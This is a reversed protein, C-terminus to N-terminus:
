FRAGAFEQYIYATDMVIGRAATGTRKEIQGTIRLQDAAPVHTAITGKLVQNVYFDVSTGAANVELELLYWTAAAVTIAGGNDDLPDLVDTGDNTEGQWAGSNVNDSYRIVCRRTSGTYATGDELGFVIWYSQAGATDSLSAPTRLLCWTRLKGGGLQLGAAATFIGSLGANTTGTDGSMVGIHSPSAVVGAVWDAGAGSSFLQWPGMRDTDPTLFEQYDEFCRLPVYLGQRTGDGRHVWEGADAQIIGPTSALFVAAQSGATATSYLVFAQSGAFSTGQRFYSGFAAGPDSTAQKVYIRVSDPDEAGGVPITPWSVSLRRREDMTISNRPSLATEHVTGASDYWTYAAWYKATTGSFVWTSFKWLAKGTEQLAKFQTGDYVLGESTLDSFANGARKWDETTTHVGATTYSQYNPRAYVAVINRVAGLDGSGRYFAQINESCTLDDSVVAAGSQVPIAGTGPATYKSVWLKANSPQNSVALFLDTGDTTLMPRYTKTYTNLAGTSLEVVATPGSAITGPVGASDNFVVWYLHYATGSFTLQAAYWYSGVKVIGCDASEALVTRSLETGASNVKVLEGGVNLYWYNTGDYWLASRDEPPEASATNWAITEVDQTLTPKVLPNSLKSALKLVSAKDLQSQGQLLAGALVTLDLARVSGNFVAEQLADTPLNILTTGDSEVLRVGAGDAEWHRSAAGQVDSGLYGGVVVDSQLTGATIMDAKIAGVAIDPGTVTALQGSGEASATASGDADHAVIKVYYPVGALLAAGSQLARITAITSPTTGVLTSPGPTFGTTASVHVDYDVADANTIGAWRVFLASVMGIVTPTPSTTPPLGDTPNPPLTTTDIYSGDVVPTSGIVDAIEWSTIADALEVAERENNTRVGVPLRDFLSYPVRADVEDLEAEADDVVVAAIRDTAAPNVDVATTLATWSGALGATLHLTNLDDDLTDYTVIATTGATDDHIRATGGADDFDAVTELSITTAAAAADVVLVSGRVRELVQSVRGTRM